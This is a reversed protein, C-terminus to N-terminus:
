KLLCPCLHGALQALGHLPQIGVHVKPWETVAHAADRNGHRVSSQLLACCISRWLQAPDASNHAPSV